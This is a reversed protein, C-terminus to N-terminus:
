YKVYKQLCAKGLIASLDRVLTESSLHLDVRALSLTVQPVPLFVVCRRVAIVRQEAATGQFNLRPMGAVLLGHTCPKQIRGNKESFRCIRSWRVEGFLECKIIPLSHRSFLNEVSECLLTIFRIFLLFQRIRWIVEVAQTETVASVVDALWCLSAKQNICAVM